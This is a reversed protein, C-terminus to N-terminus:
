RLGGLNFQSGGMGGMLARVTPSQDAAPSVLRKRRKEEETEDQRQQQLTGGGFGLDSGLLSVTPSNIPM